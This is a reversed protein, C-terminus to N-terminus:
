EKENQRQMQQKRRWYRYQQILSQDTIVTDKLGNEHDAISRARLNPTHVCDSATQNLNSESHVRDLTALLLCKRFMVKSILCHFEM